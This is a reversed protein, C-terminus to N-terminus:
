TRTGRQGSRARQAFQKRQFGQANERTPIKEPAFNREGRFGTKPTRQLYKDQQKQWHELTSKEKVLAEELQEVLKTYIPDSVGYDKARRKLDKIIEEVKLSSYGYAEVESLLRALNQDSMEAFRETVPAHGGFEHIISTFLEGITKRQALDIAVFHAEYGTLKNKMYITASDNGENEMQEALDPINERLEDLGKYFGIMIKENKLKRGLEPDVEYLLTLAMNLSTEAFDKEEVSLNRGFKMGQIVIQIKETKPLTQVVVPNRFREKLFGFFKPASFGLATLLLAIGVTKKSVFKNTRSPVVSKVKKQRRKEKKSLEQKKRGFM